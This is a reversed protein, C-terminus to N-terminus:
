KGAMCRTEAEQQMITFIMHLFRAKERQKKLTRSKWFKRAFIKHALAYCAAGNGYFRQAIKWLSDGKQVTYEKRDTQNRGVVEPPEEPKYYFAEAVSGCYQCREGLKVEAGCFKCKM